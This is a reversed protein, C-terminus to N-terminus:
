KRAVHWFYVESLQDFWFRLCASYYSGVVIIIVLARSYSYKCVRVMFTTSNDQDKASADAGIDVLWTFCRLDDSSDNSRACLGLIPTAGNDAPSQFELDPKPKEALLTAAQKRDGMSIAKWLQMNIVKQREAITNWAAMFRESGLQQAVNDATRNASDLTATDIKHELLVKACRGNNKLACHHLATGMVPGATINVSTGEKLLLEVCKAASETDRMCAHMLPPCKNIDQLALIDEEGLNSYVQRSQLQESRLKARNTVEAQAMLRKTSTLAQIEEEEAANQQRLEDISKRDCQLILAVCAPFGGCCAAMLPNM